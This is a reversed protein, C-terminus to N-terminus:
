TRNRGISADAVSGEERAGEAGLEQIFQKM